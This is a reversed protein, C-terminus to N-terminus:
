TAATLEALSLAGPLVVNRIADYVSGPRHRSSFPRRCNRAMLSEENVKETKACAAATSTL